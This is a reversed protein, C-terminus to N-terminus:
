LKQLFNLICDASYKLNAQRSKEIKNIWLNNWQENPIIKNLYENSLSYFVDNHDINKEIIYQNIADTLINGWINVGDNIKLHYDTIEDRFELIGYLGSIILIHLNNYRNNQFYLNKLENSYFKGEYREFAPMFNNNTNLLDIFYNGEVKVSVGNGTIDKQMIFENPKSNILEIYHYKRLKRAVNLYEYKESNFHNREHFDTGSARKKHSCPIILLKPKNTLNKFDINKILDRIKKNVLDTKETNM